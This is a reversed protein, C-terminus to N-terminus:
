EIVIKRTVPGAGTELRLTYVGAAMKQLSITEQIHQKNAKLNQQWVQQGIANFLRAETVAENFAPM